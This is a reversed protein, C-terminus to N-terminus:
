RQGYGVTVADGRRAGAVSAACGGRVGVELRGGSGVYAVLNGPAVDGYTRRIGHCVTNGVAVWLADRPGISDLDSERAGTVLNGFHDVHVVHTRLRGEVLRPAAVPLQTPEVRSGLAELPVGTALHAAAPAFVDRGHFTTSVPELRFRPNELQVAVPEADALLAPTLVGNDPGVFYHGASAVAIAARSTGVGPDIVVLHVTGTPFFRWSADLLYAADEVDGAPVAHTLDVLRLAPNIGLMVGKMVGVYTESLGFDTLLTIIGTSSGGKAM